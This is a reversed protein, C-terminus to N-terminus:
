TIVVFVTLFDCQWNMMKVTRNVWALFEFKLCKENKLWVSLREAPQAGFLGVIVHLFTIQGVGSLVPHIRCSRAYPKCMFVCEFVYILSEIQTCKTEWLLEICNYQVYNSRKMSNRKESANHTRLRHSSGIANNLDRAGYTFMSRVSDAHKGNVKHWPVSFKVSGHNEMGKFRRISNAYAVFPYWQGM